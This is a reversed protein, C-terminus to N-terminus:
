IRLRAAVPLHDSPYRGRDDRDALTAFARVDVGGSVLVHDIRRNHVLTDFDTVSTRPGHRVAALEAADDFRETLIEHPVSGPTCNLDGLLVLPDDGAVAPLRERLLRASERRAISGEHDFHTNCVAFTRGTTSDRLRAWTAVRPYRADWGVGPEDPTESLHFTDGDIRDFRDTHYAIPVAEGTEDRVAVDGAENRAEGRFTYEDLRDELYDYQDPTPEQLGMVAPAHYRLLAIVGDRRESWVDHHDDGAYRVNYSCVLTDSM